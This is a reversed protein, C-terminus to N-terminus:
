RSFEEAISRAQLNQLRSELAKQKAALFAVENGMIREGEKRINEHFGLIEAVAEEEAIKDKIEKIDTVIKDVKKQLAKVRLVSLGIQVFKFLVKFHCFFNVYRAPEDVQLLQVQIRGQSGEEDLNIAQAINRLDNKDITEAKVKRVAEGYTKEDAFYREGHSNFSANTDQALFKTVNDLIYMM